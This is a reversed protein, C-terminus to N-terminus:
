RSEFRLFYIQSTETVQYGLAEYPTLVQRNSARVELRATHLGQEQLFLLAACIMAPAIKRGRWGERVFIDESTGFAPHIKDNSYVSLSGVLMKGEFAAIQTSSKRELSQMFTVWADLRIPAEPFCENRAQVYMAQDATSEIKWRRITIGSPPNIVPIPLSLSREMQYLTMGPQAGKNRIFSIASEENPLYQFRIEFAHGRRETMLVQVRRRLSEFLQDKISAMNMLLPDTKIDAWIIHAFHSEQSSYQPCLAAYALLQGNPHFLCFVDEGEHFAASAYSAADIMKVGPYQRAYAQQLNMLAPIHEQKFNHIQFESM